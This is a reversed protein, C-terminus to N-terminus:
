SHVPPRVKSFICTPIRVTLELHLSSYSYRHALSGIPCGAKRRASLPLSCCHFQLRSSNVQAARVCRYSVTVSTSPANTLATVFQMVLRTQKEWYVLLLLPSGYPLPLSPQLRSSGALWIQLALKPPHTNWQM